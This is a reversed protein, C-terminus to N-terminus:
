MGVYLVYLLVEYTQKVQVPLTATGVGSTMQKYGVISGHLVYVHGSFINLYTDVLSL